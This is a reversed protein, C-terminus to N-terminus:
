PKVTRLVMKRANEDEAEGQLNSELKGEGEKVEGMGYRPGYLMKTKCVTVACFHGIKGHQQALCSDRSTRSSAPDRYTLKGDEPVCYSM